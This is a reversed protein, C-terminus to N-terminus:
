RKLVMSGKQVTSVAGDATGVRGNQSGTFSSDASMPREGVAAEYVARTREATRRWSFHSAQELGRCRLDARREPSAALDRMAAAVAATDEPAVLIGAQGVVEPLSSNNSAIVPVGCAMAQLPPLGFGEYSSLYVFGLAANYWHVIEESPVYGPFLVHEELKLSRVTSFIQEYMWGKAGAVVLKAGGGGASRRFEAYAHLLTPINKRPELTGLYLFFQNPLGRRRRFEEVEHEGAPSETLCRYDADVGLPVTVVREPLIGLLRITDQRTNESSAIVFAARRASLRTMVRLYNRKAPRHSRQFILFSLDHITVVTPARSLLPAVNVPCHLVDLGCTHLSQVTQEWLIRTPPFQTPIRSARFGFNRGLPLHRQLHAPAWDGTFVSYRSRSDIDSLGCLLQAIYNSVGAARYTETLSLLHANIGIRMDGTTEGM